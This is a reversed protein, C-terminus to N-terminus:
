ENESIRTLNFDKLKEDYMMKILTEHSKSEEGSPGKAPITKYIDGIIEALKAVLDVVVEYDGVLEAPLKIQEVLKNLLMFERSADIKM